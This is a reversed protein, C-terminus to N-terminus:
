ASPGHWVQAIPRGSDIVLRAGRDLLEPPDKSARSM